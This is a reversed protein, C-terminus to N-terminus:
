KDNEKKDLFKMEVHDKKNNDVNDKEGKIKNSKEKKDKDVNDKEGKSKKGKDKVGRDKRVKDNRVKDKRDKDEDNKGKAKPAGSAASQGRRPRQSKGRPPSLWIAYQRWRVIPRPPQQDPSARKPPNLACKPQPQLKATKPDDNPQPRKQERRKERSAQGGKLAKM